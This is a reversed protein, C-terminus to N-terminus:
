RLHIRGEDFRNRQSALKIPHGVAFLSFARLDRPMDLIQQVKEMRERIPAIGLWVGGLGLADAALWMNEQAISLDIQAFEPFKLGETRYACVIVVPAKAAPGAFRSARSLAERTGEDRVVFFEWPQQDGASPAQMAARLLLQLDEDSVEDGTFSRVSTRHFISSGLLNGQAKVPQPGSGAFPEEVQNSVENSM